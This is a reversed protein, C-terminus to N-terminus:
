PNHQQGGSPLYAAMIGIPPAGGRNFFKCMFCPRRNLRTYGYQFNIYPKQILTLIEWPLAPLPVAGPMTESFYQHIRSLHMTFADIVSYIFQFSFGWAAALKLVPVIKLYSLVLIYMVVFLSLLRYPVIDWPLIAHTSKCSCCKIRKIEIMTHILEFKKFFVVYRSYSGNLNFRGVAPCKPCRTDVFSDKKYNNKSYTNCSCTFDFIMFKFIMFMPIRIGTSLRIQLLNEQLFVPKEM